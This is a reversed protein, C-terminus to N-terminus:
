LEIYTGLAVLPKIGRQWGNGACVKSQSLALLIVVAFGRIAFTFVIASLNYLLYESILSAIIYLYSFYINGHVRVM